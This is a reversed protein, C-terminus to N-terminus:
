RGAGVTRRKMASNWATAFPVDPTVRIEAGRQEGTGDGFTVLTLAGFTNRLRIIADREAAAVHGVLVVLAGGTASRRLADLVRLVPADGSAGIVALHEMVAEIHAHGAAYGTDRGDTTVVRVLDRRNWCATVVSAAASIAAELTDTTHTRRRVDLLITVRGQWPLEDQRVMLSDHRATSPWHVRRLDDGLVYPRLAYFDEGVVGLANPHDAGAHPDHGRTHPVAVVDDVRPYVTLQSVPAAPTAVSTLGFPDSVIVSLPGVDVIGRKDTPLRYAARAREGPKLPGLLLEAGRTGAVPDRLRLVPTRRGGSNRVSVEVRSPSGAHVRPPHLERAVDLRLRTLSTALTCVLLLAGAGAGLLFLEFIGLLRGATLLAAAGAGVLWGQRTLM